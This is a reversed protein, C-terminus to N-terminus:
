MKSPFRRINVVSCVLTYIVSKSSQHYKLMNKALETTCKHNKIKEEPHTPLHRSFPTFLRGASPFLLRSVPGLNECGFGIDRGAARLAVNCYFYKVCRWIEDLGMPKNQQHISRSSTVHAGQAALFHKDARGTIATIAVAGVAACLLRAVYGPLFGLSAILLTELAPHFMGGALAAVPCFCIFHRM